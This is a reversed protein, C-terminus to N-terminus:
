TTVVLLLAVAAATQTAITTPRIIRLAHQWRRHSRRLSEPDVVHRNGVIPLARTLGFIFGILGGATPSAVLLELLWTLYLSASTVITTAGVGLQFGFGVGCVWDRYSMLWTEDVQRRVSLPRGRVDVAAALVALVAGVVLSARSGMGPLGAGVAGLATGWAAGGAASALVYFTVMRPWSASRGRQGLPTISALM